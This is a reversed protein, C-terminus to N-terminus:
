PNGVDKQPPLKQALRYGHEAQLLKKMGRWLTLWGPPGNRKLWGGLGAIAHLAQQITPAPPLKGRLLGRLVILQVESLVDTAPSDPIVRALTRLRLLLWAMPLSLGLLAEVAWRSEVQRSEYACGTKLAKFFEEILWRAQYADVVAALQEPTDIPESTALWWEVPTEGEPPHVERVGVINLSLSAPENAAATKPRALTVRAGFISLTAMRSQRPPHEKVSRKKFPGPKREALFVERVLQVPHSPARLAPALKTEGAIPTALKRDQSIRVVFREGATLRSLVRWDDAEADMVHIVRGEGVQEVVLEIGRVWRASERDEPARHDKAAHGEAKSKRPARALTQVALTGMPLPAPSAMEIALAPHVHLANQTTGNVVGLDEGHGAFTCTTTDHAVVIEHTAADIRAITQAIHPQMLKARDVQVHNIFRYLGKLEADSGMMEPLSAEPQAEFAEIIGMARRNLREDGLEIGGFEAALGVM